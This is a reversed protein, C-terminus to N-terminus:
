SLISSAAAAASVSAATFATLSIGSAGALNGSSGALYHDPNAPSNRPLTLGLELQHTLRFTGCLTHESHTGHTGVYHFPYRIFATIFVLVLVLLLVTLDVGTFIAPNSTASLFFDTDTSAPTAM